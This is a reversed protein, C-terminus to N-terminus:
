STSKSTLTFTVETGVGPKSSLSISGGLARAIGQCIPLGLGTGGDSRSRSPDVRYFRDFLHPLHEPAIGCGTDRVRIETPTASITVRGGPPTHRLANAVLNSLLRELYRADSGIVLSRDVESELKVGGATAQSRFMDFVSDVVEAVVVPERVPELQGADSRSLFLLDNVLRTMRDAARDACQLAVRYEETSPPGSLALSTNAKMATLPTRLEHSADAIFRSQSDFSSELRGLMRNFVAALRGLEDPRTEPLRRGLNEGDITEAAEAMWRIPKLARGTLFAGGFIAVILAFPILHILVGDLHRVTRDQERVSRVTEIVFRVQGGSVVPYSILRAAEGDLTIPRYDTTGSSAVRFSHWEYPGPPHPNLLTTAPIPVGHIDFIRIPVRLEEGNGLANRLQSMAATLRDGNRANTLQEHGRAEGLLETDVQRMLDGAVLYHLVLGSLVLAGALVSANYLTLRLRLSRIIM